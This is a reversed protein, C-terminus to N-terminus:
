RHIDCNPLASRLTAIGSPTVRTDKLSLDTLKDLQHLHHLGADSVQTGQIHLQELNHLGRVYQLGEDTIRTGTLHLKQLLRLGQFHRLGADGIDTGSLSLERLETLHALEAAGIDTVQTGGLWLTQLERFRAIHGLAADDLLTEQAYVRRLKTLGGLHEFAVGTVQVGSIYLTRLETLDKLNAFGAGTVHTGTLSLEQLGALRRLHELGYDSAQTEGLWLRQLSRLNGLHELAADTVNTHYLGLDTLNVMRKVYPMGDDTVRTYSLDLRRLNPLELQELGTDTLPTRSLDLEQLQDLDNLFALGRGKVQTGVLTLRELRTLRGLHELGADGVQTNNLQLVRLGRLHSLKSLATNTVDVSRLFDANLDIAIIQFEEDPLTSAVFTAGKQGISTVLLVGRVSLVWEAAKRERADMDTDEGIGGPIEPPEETGEARDQPQKLEAKVIEVGGSEIAFNRVFFEFGDKSVKLRHNGPEVEIAIKDRGANRSIEVKNSEDFVQVLADPENVEVVLTGDPTVLSLVASWLFPLLLATVVAVSGFVVWRKRVRRRAASAVARDPSRLASRKTGVLAGPLPKQTSAGSHLAEEQSRSGPEAALLLRALNNGACFPGLERVVEAPERYRDDPSKATMKDIVCCLEAPVNCGHDALPPIPQQAHAMMKELGSGCELSSFPAHGTLLKYLTCGLSYIDARIDVGHSDSSQEPAMYDLSGMIQGSITLEHTDEAEPHTLLALGLDLIKLVASQRNQIASPSSVGERSIASPQGSSALMLNSPKIDRHTLGHEHAYQLGVATQRIVECADAVSLPGSFEVVQSLTLGEVFEMVLFHQGQAEGADHARVINPHDLRGIAEMERHFRVVAQPNSMRDAPLVKIAVVRKLKAHLAKYVAGMGGQGLEEILRYQDPLRIDRSEAGRGPSEKAHEQNAESNWADKLGPAAVRHLLGELERDDPGSENLDARRLAAILPDPLGDLPEVAEQCKRCAALHQCIVDGTEDPLKGLVYDALQDGTPCGPEDALRQTM